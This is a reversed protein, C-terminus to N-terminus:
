TPTVSAPPPLRPFLFTASFALAARSTRSKQREIGGGWSTLCCLVAFSSLPQLSSRKRLTDGQYADEPSSLILSRPILLLWPSGTVGWMVRRSKEMMRWRRQNSVTRVSEDAFDNVRNPTSTKHLRESGVM